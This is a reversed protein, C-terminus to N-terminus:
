PRAKEVLTIATGMKKLDAMILWAGVCDLLAIGFFAQAAYPGSKLIGPAYFEVGSMLLCAVAHLPLLLWFLFGLNYRLKFFRDRLSFWPPQYVVNLYCSQFLSLAVNVNTPHGLVAKIAPVDAGKVGYLREIEDQLRVDSLQRFTEKFTTREVALNKKSTSIWNYFPIIIGIAFVALGIFELWGFASGPPTTKTQKLVATQFAYLVIDKSGFSMLGVGLAILRSSATGFVFSLLRDLAKGIDITGSFKLTM